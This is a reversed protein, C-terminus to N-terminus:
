SSTGGSKRRSVFAEFPDSPKPTAANVRSRSSPTGGFEALLRLMDREASQAIQVYPSVKLSGHGAVEVLGNEEIKEKATVWRSYAACYLAVASGDVRSLVGSEELMPVIREWETRATADLHEPCEPRGPVAVPESGNIRDARVGAVIKLATPRPKPGRRGMFVDVDQFFL